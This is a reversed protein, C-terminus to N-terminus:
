IVPQNTQRDLDQCLIDNEQSQRCLFHLFYVVALLDASGGPSLNKKTFEADLQATTDCTPYPDDELLRAIQQKVQLQTQRDSRHILNTDDTAAILHLLTACGANNLSLGHSLGQHLVPLGSKLVSPFGAEAQGRVGTIGYRAFIAEGPTKANELTVGAFDRATVGAVMAAAHSCLQEPTWMEVPLRGAAACLIGLSFIAGKHTNVGGTASYMAQEAEIGIPRIRRFTEEPPMDRTLFGEEAFRSFYPRLANASAFFHKVGMDPHSGRNNRDVLGPKPTTTVEKNLALWARTGIYEAMWQRAALYLLFGTKDQLADLGHARSRACVIADNNCLLCKRRPIGLDQRTLKTGDTNIVDMDFLRGIPDTDELGVAIQKLELAPLDVSYFAECGTHAWHLERHTIPLGRLSDELLWNGVAFGIDIDRNQKIPGPINMTFCLLPVPYQSLLTKQKAARKERADLIEQLTAEM